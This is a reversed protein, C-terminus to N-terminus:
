KEIVCDALMVDALYGSCRGKISIPQGNKISAATTNKALINCSVGGAISNSELLITLTSDTHSVESVKGKVLVVKDVYEKNAAMENQAFAEYLDTANITVAPTIAEVSTHPKNYLYFAYAAVCLMLIAVSFIVKKRM